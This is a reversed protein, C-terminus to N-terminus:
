LNSRGIRISMRVLDPLGGAGMKEMVAARYHEVTRQSIKLREAIQSNSFGTVILDMVELERGTLRSARASVTGRARRETREAVQREFAQELSLCLQADDVPKEIFDVAGTKFAEITMPVDGQGTIYIVPLDLGREQMKHHLEIGTMEPMCVDAVVCGDSEPGVVSLLARGSDFTEVNFGFSGLMLALSNRVAPEDDVLYVKARENM